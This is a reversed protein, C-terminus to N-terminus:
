GAAATRQTLAAVVDAPDPMAAIEAAVEAAAARLNEDSVLRELSATTLEKLPVALGAGRAAVLRANVTRDGPGPVVIQPAGVALATMVTGAGGHHVIGAVHPLVAAHPLWETTRVNPPLTRRSVMPDPRILVVDLDAGDAADVVTSMLRDPRPDAVTSRSVLITRRATPRTLEDPVAGTGAVPVYRMLRGRRNGVVSTPSTRLIDSPPPLPGLGLERALRGLHAAVSTRQQEPDFLNGDVLVAPVGARAAALLGAGALPEHLVLQPRWDDVLALTGPAMRRTVAAMTLGIAETGDDGRLTRRLLLPHRLLTGLMVPALNLGPCVDHAPVGARRAADLGDGGTAVVVEHGADRLAAALPMLPLVHGVM